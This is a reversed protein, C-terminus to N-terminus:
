HESFSEVATDQVAAATSGLSHGWASWASYGPQSGMQCLLEHCPSLERASNVKGTLASLVWPVWSM